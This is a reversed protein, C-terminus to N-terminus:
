DDTVAAILGDLIKTFSGFAKRADWFLGDDLQGREHLVEALGQGECVEGALESFRARASERMRAAHEPTIKIASM